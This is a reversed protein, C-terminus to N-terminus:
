FLVEKINNVLLFAAQKPTPKYPIYKTLKPTLLKAVESNELTM